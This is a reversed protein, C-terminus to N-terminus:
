KAYTKDQLEWQGISTSTLIIDMEGLIKTSQDVTPFLFTEEPYTEGLAAVSKGTSPSSQNREGHNTGLLISQAM